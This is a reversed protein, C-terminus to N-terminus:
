DSDGEGGRKRKEGGGDGGGGSERGRGGRVEERVELVYCRADREEGRWKGKRKGEGSRDKGTVIEGVTRAHQYGPYAEWPFRFSEVVQLGCHRALDRINWLTYPHTTFLSILIQGKTQIPAPIDIDADDHQYTHSDDSPPSSSTSSALFPKAAELFKVLLEQNARVQRNIDTSLGGVHPFNFVIKTFPSTRRLLKRHTTSLKTADIGYHVTISSTDSPPPTPSSSSVASSSPSSTPSFGEFDADNSANQWQLQFMTSPADPYKDTLEAETDYCTATISQPTYHKALSLAFSFDGEGILLVKDRHTFPAKPQQSAQPTQRKTPKNPQRSPLVQSHQRRKVADRGKQGPRNPKGALKRKVKAM